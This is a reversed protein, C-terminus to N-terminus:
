EFVGAEEQCREKPNQMFGVAGGAFGKFQL